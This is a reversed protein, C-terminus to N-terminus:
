FSVAEVEIGDGKLLLVVLLSVLPPGHPWFTHRLESRHLALQLV